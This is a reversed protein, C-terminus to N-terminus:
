LYINSNLDNAQLNYINNGNGKDILPCAYLDEWSIRKEPDAILM